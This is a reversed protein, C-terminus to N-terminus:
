EVAKLPCHLQLQNGTFNGRVWWSFKDKDIKIRGDELIEGITNRQDYLALTCKGIKGNSRVILSNFQSAYCQANDIFLQDTIPINLEAALQKLKKISKGLTEDDM